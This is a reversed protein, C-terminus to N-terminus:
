MGMYGNPGFRDDGNGGQGGGYGDNSRPYGFSQQSTRLNDPPLGANWGAGPASSGISTQPSFIASGTMMDGGFDFMEEDNIMDTFNSRVGCIMLQMNVNYGLDKCKKCPGLTQRQYVTDCTQCVLRLPDFDCTYEPHESAIHQLMGGQTSRVRSCEPNGSESLSALVCEFSTGYSQYTVKALPTPSSAPSSNQSQIQYGPDSFVNSGAGFSQQSYTSPSYNSNSVQTGLFPQSPVSLRAPTTRYSSFNPRAPTHTRDAASPGFTSATQSRHTGQRHSSQPHSSQLQRPQQAQQNQQVQMYQHQFPNNMALAGAGFLPDTASLKYNGGPMQLSSQEFGSCGMESPNLASSPVDYVLNTTPDTSDQNTGLDDLDLQQAYARMDGTSSQDGGLLDMALDVLEEATEAHTELAAPNASPKRSMAGDYSPKPDGSHLLAWEVLNKAKPYTELIDELSHHSFACKVKKSSCHECSGLTRVLDKRAKLVPDLAKKKKEAAETGNTASWVSTEGWTQRTGATYATGHSSASMAKPYFGSHESELGSYARSSSPRYLSLPASSDLGTPQEHTPLRSAFM